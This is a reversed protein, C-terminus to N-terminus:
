GRECEKKQSYINDARKSEWESKRKGQKVRKEEREWNCKERVWGTEWEIKIEGM